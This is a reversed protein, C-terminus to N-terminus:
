RTVRDRLYVPQAHEATVSEGRALAAIALTAVDHAHPYREPEIGVLEHRRLSMQGSRDALAQRLAAEYTQWGSGVGFWGIGGHTRDGAPASYDPM